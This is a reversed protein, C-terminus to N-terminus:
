EYSPQNCSGDANNYNKTGLCSISPLDRGRSSKGSRLKSSRLYGM